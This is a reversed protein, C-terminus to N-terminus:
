ENRKHRSSNFDLSPIINSQKRPILIHKNELKGGQWDIKGRFYPMHEQGPYAM